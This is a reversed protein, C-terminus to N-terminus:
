TQQGMMSLVTAIPVGARLISTFQRCFMAMDKSTPNGLFPLEIDKNLVTQEQINLIKYGASRLSQKANDLSNAELSDKITKGARNVAKYNYVPM